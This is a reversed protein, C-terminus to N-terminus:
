AQVRLVLLCIPCKLENPSDSVFEYDYGGSGEISASTDFSRTGHFDDGFAAVNSHWETRFSEVPHQPPTAAETLHRTPERNWIHRGRARWGRRGRTQCDMNATLECLVRRATSTM